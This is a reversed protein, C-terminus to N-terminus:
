RHLPAREHPRRWLAYATMAGVVAAVLVLWGLFGVLAVAVPGLLAAAVATWAARQVTPPRELGGTALHVVLATPVFIAFVSLM